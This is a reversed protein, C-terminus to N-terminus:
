FIFCEKKAQSLLAEYDPYILVGVGEGVAGGTKYGLVLSEAIFKSTILINEVLEPYVKKGGSTVIVDKARGTIFIYNDSDIKGLDGTFFWGDHLVKATQEPNKYYGQMVNDGKVAIEGIGDSDPNFIKVEVGNLPIGVSGIKIKNIPNASVVPSTESLGYGEMFNIGIGTFGEIVSPDMPAAGSVMVRIKGGLNKKLVNGIIKKGGFNYIMRKIFSSEVQRIIGKYIKSYVMPVGLMVTPRCEM